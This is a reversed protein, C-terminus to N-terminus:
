NVRPLCVQPGPIQRFPRLKIRFCTISEDQCVKLPGRLIGKAHTRTQEHTFIDEECSHVFLYSNKGPLKGSTSSIIIKLNHCTELLSSNSESMGTDPSNTRIAFIGFSRLGSPDDKNSDCQCFFDHMAAM